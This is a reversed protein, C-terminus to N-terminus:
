VYQAYDSVLLHVPSEDEDVSPYRGAQEFFRNDTRDDNVTSVEGTLVPAGEAFFRHYLGPYLTISEGPTLVVQGGSEVRRTIGDIVVDVPEDSFEGDDRSHRLELVLNGGGRNIIDETKKWHFHYPTEQGERVLMIKEAYTKGGVNVNGNRITFLLLGREFFRESGFDTVDWGLMNGTIESLDEDASSWREPSWYAWPPLKFKMEALFAVAHTLWENIESRKM